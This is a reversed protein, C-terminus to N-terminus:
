GVEGTGPPVWFAEKLFVRDAVKERELRRGNGLYTSALDFDVLVVGEGDHQSVVFNRAYADQHVVGAAHVADLAAMAPDRLADIRDWQETEGLAQISTGPSILEMLLVTTTTDHPQTSIRAPGYFHPIPGGQLSLLSTYAAIEAACRTPSHPIKAIVSPLHPATTRSLIAVTPTILREVLFDRRPALTTLPPQSVRYHTSSEHFGSDRSGTRHHTASSPVCPLLLELTLNADLQFGHYQGSTSPKAESQQRKPQVRRNGLQEPAPDQESLEQYNTAVSTTAPHSFDRLVIDNATLSRYNLFVIIERLSLRPTADPHSVLYTVSGPEPSDSTFRFYIACGEDMLVFDKVGINFAYKTLQRTARIWDAPPEVKKGAHLADAPHEDSFFNCCSAPCKIGFVSLM